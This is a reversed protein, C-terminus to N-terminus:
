NRSLPEKKEGLRREPVSLLQLHLPVRIVPFYRRNCQLFSGQISVWTYGESATSRPQGIIRNHFTQAIAETAFQAPVVFRLPRDSIEGRMPAGGTNENSFSASSTRVAFM